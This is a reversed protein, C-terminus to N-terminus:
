WLYSWITSKQVIPEIFAIAVDDWSEKVILQKKRFWLYGSSCWYFISYKFLKTNNHALFHLLQTPSSLASHSPHHKALASLVRGATAALPEEGESVKLPKQQPSSRTSILLHVACIQCFVARWKGLRFCSCQHEGGGIHVHGQWCPVAWWGWFRCCTPFSGQHSWPGTGWPSHRSESPSFKTHPPFLLRLHRQAAPRPCLGNTTPAKFWTSWQHTFCQLSPVFTFDLSSLSYPRWLVTLTKCLHFGM